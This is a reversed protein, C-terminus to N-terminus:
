PPLAGRERLQERLGPPLAERKALGPPLSGARAYERIVRVHGDRDVVVAHAADHGKEVKKDKDHKDHKDAGRGRGQGADATAPAMSLAVAVFLAGFIQEYRSM